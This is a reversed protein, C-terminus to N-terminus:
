RFDKILIIDASSTGRSIAFQKGDRSTAFNYIRETTFKTLQKPAGGEIPQTWLNAVGDREESYVLSRGDPTWRPRDAKPSLDLVKVVQGTEFSVLAPRWRAPSVQEDYYNSLILKGDPSFAWTTLPQESVQVPEGGDIPVKWPRGNGTRWSVFVVWQGDPSCTPSYDTAQGQTLQKPNGGDIDMRWIHPVGGARDSSFFIYRGDPSVTLSNEFAADSTLQKQGTGDANMIWIDSDDGAKTVYVVRGDSTWSLGDRGDNKGTTLKKARGEDENMSALWVKASYEEVITVITNSDATLGFSSSGYQTLDNTIRSVAGDGYSLKWIQMPSALQEQANLILGSGDKLWFLRYISGHWQYSSIPREAGGEAPVEVVTFNTGGTDTAAVCAIVRGDPSWAPAGNFWDNGGRKALTRPELSGDVNAVMLASDGTKQYDRFFAFQKGDPSFTIIYSLHELIKKPERGGIVPVQYLTGLTSKQREFFNYYVLEGDPSFVTGGFSADAVPPVIERDSGTSVQRVHLSVKGEKYLGYAVYKGDPSISANAVDGMGTVLRSIKMQRANAVTRERSAFRYIGYGLGALILVALILVIGQKHSKVQNVVYEASSVNTAKTSVEGSHATQREAGTVTSPADQSIRSSSASGTNRLLEPAVSRELEAEADVRQKLRQLKKLLERATQTREERDKTLAETVVWELAEPVGEVYSSMPLPEKELIAVIIHSTTAGEFPAHGTVIEYLVCGLSWLDTRADVEKASAQEPSMYNATGMVAGPDTNVLARTAAETDVSSPARDTLKALGFDLVKVYGDPRVMINEPKIDRHVIGAAHAAALASAVQIAVDLVEVLKLKRSALATRLTVGDVLETSFFRAGDAQGIEYVTLINPHNLASAARAEQIFRQMRKEDAAVETRLFKLAVPRHLETDLARYVEGM